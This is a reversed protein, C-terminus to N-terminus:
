LSTEGDPKPARLALSIAYLAAYTDIAQQSWIDNHDKIIDKTCRIIWYATDKYVYVGGKEEWVVPRYTHGAKYRSFGKFTETQPPFTIRWQKPAEDKKRPSTGFVFTKGATLLNARLQNIPAGGADPTPTKSPEIFRNVLLPNHGPTHRYYYSQPILVDKSKGESALIFDDGPYKRRLTPLLFCFTNALRHTKGTAWDGSSTLSFFVPSNAGKVKYRFMAHGHAALFSQFQKAYISPAASNVLLVTDFPLPNAEIKENPKPKGFPWAM